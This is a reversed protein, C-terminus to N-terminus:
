QAGANYEPSSLKSVASHGTLAPLEPAVLNDEGPISCVKIGHKSM